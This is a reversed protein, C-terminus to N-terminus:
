AAVAVAQVQQGFRLGSTGVRPPDAGWVAGGPPSERYGQPGM